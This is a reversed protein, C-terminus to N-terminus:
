TVWLLGTGFTHSESISKDFHNSFIPPFLLYLVFRSFLVFLQVKARVCVCFFAILSKKKSACKVAVFDPDEIYCSASTRSLIPYPPQICFHSSPL